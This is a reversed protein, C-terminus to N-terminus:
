LIAKQLPKESGDQVFVNVLADPIASFVYVKAKEGRTQEGKPAIITLFTKQTPKLAGKDWVSFYQSSQITDKGEINFLELQYDGPELKGLDLSEESPQQQREVVTKETKWNKIEDNKDFLDHPFKSIFEEKSYKPLNQIDSKFNGRFIRDPASLKSLKVQYPKKLSQENYNKTEVKLKVNEDSFADKIDDAKIYHSVSSVKLQTNAMQTEGNIDTASANIEYNDIQIGELKEDKKLDIKIVFEGKENTKTEGLISNENGGDNPYGRFYMWRINRKKIEYNVTSNSLAVGSFMRAKGKLEITQGYKYEEKVPDFTIEFKPRKYEEVRINKYGRPEGVTRIYFTGNLKGKPLVFSGHYSGFENTTFDQSSIEQNNADLLTIKQQQGSVVSEVEKEIRTNIVKFYVTQGPRYIARDTFIQATTRTQKNPNYNENYTGNGYVQMIQFDNTKPQQILYTRYYEKSATSPFKFVGKEDTKGEVKNLTRNSVFEYFTLNENTQPKGNESNVLKLEDTLVNRDTKSQYIVKNGSVLFYLNQPEDDSKMKEGAVIYEAVYVGSPLPKM